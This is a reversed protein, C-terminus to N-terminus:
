KVVLVPCPAYYLVYSSVSGMLLQKVAGRGRSGMIILDYNNEQCFDVILETPEGIELFAEAKLTDPVQKLAENLIGRGDEKMDSPIYGGTSVQEFSSVKSALDTVYLLGIKAQCLEALYIAHELARKSHGSGDFPVLISCFKKM